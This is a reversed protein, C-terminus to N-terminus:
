RGHEEIHKGAEIAARCGTGAATVAQRFRHDVVDGAAFVGAVNTHTNDDAIIYGNEDMEVMGKFISSNPVHGIAVFLGDVALDETSEDTTSKLKLSNVGLKDGSIEEVVRSWLIEIKENELARDQMIRSARLADRRHIVYVKKTINSLYLAEEMASDGGGVIGVQRDKFFFGDCTACTSVGRGYFEDEGTVNLKRPSSGTAIILARADCTQKSTTVQHTEGTSVSEVTESKFEAGFRQAQKEMNSCFEPGMIGEPFGPFNELMTTTTLQGGPQGGTLVLTKYGARGAYIAATCGACGSGIVIIDYM